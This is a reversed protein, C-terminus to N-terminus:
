GKARRPERTSAAARTASAIIRKSDSLWHACRRACRNGKGHEVVAEEWLPMALVRGRSIFAVSTGDPSADFEELDEPLPSSAGPQRRRRQPRMSPSPGVTGAAVDLLRVEAGATYVIRRGDTAPFRAYYETESTHRQLDSGDAEVSYLNAIGEHDSLFAIALRDM